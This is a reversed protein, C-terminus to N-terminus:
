REVVDKDPDRHVLDVVLDRGVPVITVDPPPIEKTPDAEPLPGCHGDCGQGDHITCTYRHVRTGDDHLKWGEADRPGVDYAMANEPETSM